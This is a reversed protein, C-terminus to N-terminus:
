LLLEGGIDGSQTLKTLLTDDHTVLLTVNKEKNLVANLWRLQGMVAPVDEKVWPAAKGKIQAINDLVWGVDVSHLIERGSQLAIYVMQHDVSHGPTKILVMGPAIPYCDGYDFINFQNIREATMMLHPKHPTNLLCQATAVTIFTKAALENFNDAQTVGAVHDAHFHTLVIMRAANLAMQLKAFEASFYPERKDPTSFSDHTEQDLGSDIMVTCDPYVVQFASRPMTVPTEDTGGIVFKAPRVSAAVRVANVAVPWAGPLLGALRRIHSLPVQFPVESVATQEVTASM